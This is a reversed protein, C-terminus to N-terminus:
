HSTSNVQFSTHKTMYVVLDAWGTFNMRVLKDRIHPDPFLKSTLLHPLATTLSNIFSVEQDALSRLQCKRARTQQRRAHHQEQITALSKQPSPRPREDPQATVGGHQSVAAIIQLLVVSHMKVQRVQEWSTYDDAQNVMHERMETLIKDFVM